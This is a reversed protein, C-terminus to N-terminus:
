TTKGRMAPYYKWWYKTLLNNLLSNDSFDIHYLQTHTGDTRHVCFGFSGTIPCQTTDTYAWSKVILLIIWVGFLPIFRACLLQSSVFVILRFTLYHWKSPNLCDKYNVNIKM